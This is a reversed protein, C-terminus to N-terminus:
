ATRKRNNYRWDDYATCFAAIQQHTFGQKALSIMLQLPVTPREGTLVAAILAPPASIREAFAPIDMQEMLAQLPNM